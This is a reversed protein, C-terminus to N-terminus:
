PKLDRHILNKNHIEKLGLCLEYIFIYIEKEDLHKNKNKNETILKRLDIGECFEMIINFTDKEIFSDYYKVIYQNNISSLIDAEKKLQELEEKKAEKLIIQKLAYVQNDKSNLVKFVSGFAGQGIKEIIKYDQINEKENKIKSIM